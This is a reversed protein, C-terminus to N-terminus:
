LPRGKRAIDFIVENGQEPNKVMLDVKTDCLRSLRYELNLRTKIDLQRSPEFFIDIDGGRKLDDTRSGYLYIKGSPDAGHLVSRVVQIEHETLRM